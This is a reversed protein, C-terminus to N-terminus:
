LFYETYLGIPRLNKYRLSLGDTTFYGFHGMKRNLHEKTIRLHRTSRLHKSVITRFWLNGVAMFSTLFTASIRIQQSSGLLSKLISNPQRLFFAMRKVGMSYKLVKRRTIVGATIGCTRMLSLYQVIAATRTPLSPIEYRIDIRKKGCLHNCVSCMEASLDGFIIKKAHYIFVYSPVGLNHLPLLMADRSYYSAGIQM